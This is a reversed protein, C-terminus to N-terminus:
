RLVDWANEPLVPSVFDGLIEGTDKMFGFAPRQSISQLPEKRIDAKLSQLLVEIITLREEISANQLKEVTESDIM